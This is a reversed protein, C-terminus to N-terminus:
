VEPIDDGFGDLLDEGVSDFGELYKQTSETVTAGLEETFKERTTAMSDEHEAAVIILAAAESLAATLATLLVAEGELDDGDEQDQLFENITKKVRKFLEGAAEETRSLKM